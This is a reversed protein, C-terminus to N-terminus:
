RTASVGYVPRSGSLLAVLGALAIFLSRLVPKKGASEVPLDRTHAHRFSLSSFYLLFVIVFFIGEARSFKGNITTLYLLIGGIFAVWYDYKLVDREVPVPFIIAGVALALGINAMNSGVVNGISIGSNGLAAAMTSVILEPLSTGVAGLTLGVILPSIGIGEAM